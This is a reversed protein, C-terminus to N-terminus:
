PPSPRVKLTFSGQRHVCQRGFALLADTQLKHRHLSRESKPVARKERNSLRLLKRVIVCAVVMEHSGMHDCVAPTSKLVVDTAQHVLGELAGLSCLLLATLGWLTSAGRSRLRTKGQAACSPACCSFARM